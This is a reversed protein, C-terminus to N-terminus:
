NCDPKCGPSSAGSAGFLPGSPDAPVGERENEAFHIDSHLKGYLYYVLGSLPMLFLIGVLGLKLAFRLRSMLAMAPGFIVNFM